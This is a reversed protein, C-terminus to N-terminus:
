TRDGRFFCADANDYLWTDRVGDTLDLASAEGLCRRMSLVPYDSAFLIRNKGRTSMCHLLSDRLRKPSWASTMLRPNRHKLMLRIATDWWPDAGRIMCLKLEPFRYWVRDLHMPNRPEAPLPPGPIGTNLCLALELECCKTYRPFYAACRSRASGPERPRSSTV